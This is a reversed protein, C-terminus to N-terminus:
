EDREAKYRQYLDYARAYLPGPRGDGVPEGNLRTVPQVEKTSSTIWVEDASLLEAETFIREAHPIGDKALLEVVLDRTIGPLLLPGHPPTLVTGDIVAFVNSASGETVYSDRVLIAEVAGHQKAKQRLWVNGVLSVTKLDCRQWRIDSLTIAAVGESALTAPPAPLTQAYAFLTPRAAEPFVHDRPAVGRTVQIYLYHDDRREGTLGAALRDFDDASWPHPIELIDLNRRLRALHQAWRFPRGGYVPVVEYIGDGFLFGRDFASVLAADPAVFRGDLYVRTVGPFVNPSEAITAM